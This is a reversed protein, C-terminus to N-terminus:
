GRRWPGVMYLRLAGGLLLLGGLLLGLGGGVGAAITRGIVAAGLAMVLVALAVEIKM